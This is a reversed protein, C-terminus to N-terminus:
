HIPSFEAPYMFVVRQHIPRVEGRPPWVQRKRFEARVEERHDWNKYPFLQYMKNLDGQQTTFIGAVPYVDNRGGYAEGFSQAAKNIDGGTAYTYIRLEYVSGLQQPGTWDPMGPVPDLIEVEQNLLLEGTKPPWLGSTDKSAEARTDARKQMSEYPWIHMVQNVNGIEQHWMGGLKSYKERAKYAEAFRKEYEPVMNPKMTYIRLEYIM